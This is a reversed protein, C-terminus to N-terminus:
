GMFNYQNEWVLIQEIYERVGECMSYIAGGFLLKIMEAQSLTVARQATGEVDNTNVSDWGEVYFTEGVSYTYSEKGYMLYRSLHTAYDSCRCFHLFETTLKFIYYIKMETFQDVRGDFEDAMELQAKWMRWTNMMQERRNEMEKAAKEREHARKQEEAREQMEKLLAQQQEQEQIVLQREACWKMYAEYEEESTAAWWQNNSQQNQQQMMMNQQMQNWGM